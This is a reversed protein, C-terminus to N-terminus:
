ATREASVTLSTLKLGRATLASRIENLVSSDLASSSSNIRVAVEGKGVRDIEVTGGLSSQLDLKLAPRNAKVFVDIKEILALTAETKADSQNANSPKQASAEVSMAGSQSSNVNDHVPVQQSQGHQMPSEGKLHAREETQFQQKLDDQILSKLRQAQASNSAESHQARIEGLGAATQMHAGRANQFSVAKKDIDVRVASRVSHAAASALTSSVAGAVPKVAGGRSLTLAPMQAAAKGPLKSPAVGNPSQPGAGPPKTADGKKMAETFAAKNPPTGTPQAQDVENVKM